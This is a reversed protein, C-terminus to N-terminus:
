DSSSHREDHRLSDENRLIEEKILHFSKAAVHSTAEFLEDGEMSIDAKHEEFVPPHVETICELSTVM